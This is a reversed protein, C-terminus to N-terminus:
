ERTPLPCIVYLVVTAITHITCYRIEVFASMLKLISVLPGGGYGFFRSLEPDSYPLRVFLVYFFPRSKEKNLSMFCM